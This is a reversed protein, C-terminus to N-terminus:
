YFVNLHYFTMKFGVFDSHDVGKLSQHMVEDLKAGGAKGVESCSWVKLLRM